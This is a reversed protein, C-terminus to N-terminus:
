ASRRGLGPGDVAAARDRRGLLHAPAAADAPHRCLAPRRARSVSGHCSCASPRPASRDFARLERSRRRAGHAPMAVAALLNIPIGSAAAPRDARLRLAVVAMAVGGVLGGKVGASYPQIEVPLRVRHDARGAPPADVTRPSAVVAAGSPSPRSRCTSSAARGAARERFWGVGASACVLVCGSSRRRDVHTVLAPSRAADIGLAVMCAAVRDAGPCRRDVATDTIPHM